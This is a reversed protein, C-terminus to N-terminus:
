HQDLLGKSSERQERLLFFEFKLQYMQPVNLTM